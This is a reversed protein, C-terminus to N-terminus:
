SSKGKGLYGDPSAHNLKISDGRKDEYHTCLWGAFTQFFEVSCAEEAGMSSDMKQHTLFQQLVRQANQDKVKCALSTGEGGIKIIVAPKPPKPKSVGSDAVKAVKEGNLQTQALKPGMIYLEAQKVKKSAMSFYIRHGPTRSLVPIYVPYHSIRRDCAAAQCWRGSVPIM